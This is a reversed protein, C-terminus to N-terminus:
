NFFGNRALWEGGAGVACLLLGGVVVVFTLKNSEERNNMSSRRIKLEKNVSVASTQVHRQMM